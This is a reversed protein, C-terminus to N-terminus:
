ANKAQHIKNTRGPFAVVNGTLEFPFDSDPPVPSPEEEPGSLYKEMMEATDKEPLIQRLYYMTMSLSSHGLLRQIDPLSM